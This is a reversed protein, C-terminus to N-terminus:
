ATVTLRRTLACGAALACGIGAVCATWGASDFLMGLVISGALGGTFYSALYIGSAASKGTRATQSVYGTVVAQAFFTGASVLVMGALVANLSPLVLLPLGALALLLGGGAAQRAGTRKAVLGALPTTIMAPLFVFYVLGVQMMGLSLPPRVLVFNVFTFTGIFAFLVCFGIMFGAALRRDRFHVAWGFHTAPGAAMAKQPTSGVVAYALLGGCLNLAAFVLFNATLGFHGAVGASILRGILNSAVNGTIYAAFAAATNGSDMREGLWALTLAFAASMCLGQVIRLVTFVPLPPLTALILTPLALITLSVLIGPRRKIHSGFLAIALGGAAMGITSANVAFSMMGPSVDYVKTLVPLIAQAAFLDVLTLFAMAAIVSLRLLTRSPTGTM